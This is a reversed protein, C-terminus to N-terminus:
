ARIRLVAYLEQPTQCLQGAKSNGRGTVAHLSDLFAILAEYQPRECAEGSQWRHGLWKSRALGGKGLKWAEAIFESVIAEPLELGNSQFVRRPAPQQAIIPGVETGAPVTLVETRAGPLPAPLLAPKPQQPRLMRWAARLEVAHRLLHLVAYPAYALSLWLLMLAQMSNEDLHAALSLFWISLVGCLGATLSQQLAHWPAPRVAANAAAPMPQPLTSVETNVDAHSYM